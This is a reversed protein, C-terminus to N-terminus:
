NGGFGGGGGGTGFGNGTGGTQNRNQTQRNNLQNANQRQSNQTNRGATTSQNPFLNQLVEQVAQPDSNEVSYVFVKQKRAPDSDLQELMRAIQEMLDRAASVVISRTRLDPVAVVENQKQSRASQDASGNRNAGTGAAGGGRGFPGAGGFAGGFRLQGGQSSSQQRTTSSFLGTLLDATEQPDAYKLRFVRLETIEEVNTDVQTVVGEIIVMQEEPANVVVSNSREDAVAVVKTTPARGGSASADTAAGGGGPGGPGGPFGGRLANFFRGQGGTNNGTRSTDTSPFLDRIMTSVAKADAYRLPFVRVSSVSAIATDLAQVIEAMRRINTQTDTVVLANGGENATLTATDPLLPQLDKTLQVANIYRVPIIQTVIEDSRPIEAPKNGSIVPIDRKKADSRSVITLTRENRIAAYGNKNLVSNLLTIAEEKSLPQNSWVDVKGRIETELNIIFGAADSLYDLVMELPVGRFNFRLGPEGNAAREVPPAPLTSRRETRSPRAREEGRQRFPERDATAPEDAPVPTGPTPAPEADVAPSPEAPVPQTLAPTEQPPVEPAPDAALAQGCLLLGGLWRSLARM